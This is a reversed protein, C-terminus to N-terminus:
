RDVIAETVKDNYQYFHIAKDIRHQGEAIQWLPECFASDEGYNLDPYHSSKALDWRWACCHFPKRKIDVWRGNRRGAPENENNLDFNVKFWNGNNIRSMQDFVLVDAGSAAAGLLLDVYEPDIDDDDDVQCIYSARAAQNLAERKLGISRKKNDTLMLIEVPKDGAQRSIKEYLSIAM